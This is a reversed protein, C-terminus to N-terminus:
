GPWCEGKSQAASAKSQDAMDPNAHALHMALLRQSYHWDRLIVSNMMPSKHNSMKENRLM